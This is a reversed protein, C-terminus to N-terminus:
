NADERGWILALLFWVPGLLLSNIFLSNILIGILVAQSTADRRRWGAGIVAWVFVLLGILGTTAWITLLSSDSGNAALNIQGYYLRLDGGAVAAPKFYNYGVGIIPSQQVVSWGTQWSVLRAVTTDDLRLVGALRNAAGVSLIPVMIVGALLLLLWRRNLRYALYALAVALSLWGSRSDTLFIAGLQLLGLYPWPRRWGRDASALSWTVIATLTLLIAAINPDFWLAFLRGSHPDFGHSVVMSVPITPWVALQILGIAAVGGGLWALWRHRFELSWRAAVAFFLGYAGVRLIYLFTDLSWGFRAAGWFASLAVLALWAALWRALILHRWHRVLAVVVVIGMVVDLPNVRSLITGPEFLRSVFGAGFALSLGIIM